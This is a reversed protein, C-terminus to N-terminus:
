ARERLSLLADDVGRLLSRFIRSLALDNECPGLMGSLLAQIDDTINNVVLEGQPSLEFLVGRADYEDPIRNILSQEELRVAAISAYSRSVRLYQVVEKARLQKIVGQRKPILELLFRFDTLSLNSTSKTVSGIAQSM